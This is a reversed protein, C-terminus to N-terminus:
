KRPKRAAIPGVLASKTARAIDLHREMLRAARELKGSAILDLLAIHETFQRAIKERSRKARYELLRRLANVRRIADVLFPNGSGAVIAEHLRSGVEFIEADSYRADHSLLDQQQARLHAVVEPALAYGPQRLAAPEIMARFRYGDEYGKVSDLTPLFAWGHGPLRELWGEQSMRATLASIRARSARYRRVLEMETVREAIRGNLRDEAIRYYLKDGDHRATSAAGAAAAARLLFFGRNPRHELAGQGALLQLALRVPTRSVRFHDALAQETVHTGPAGAVEALREAIRAALWAVLAGRPKAGRARRAPPALPSPEFPMRWQVALPWLYLDM